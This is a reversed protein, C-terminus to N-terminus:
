FKKGGGGFTGGGTSHTTSRGSSSSGGGGSSSSVKPIVRSTRRTDILIDGSAGHTLNVFSNSGVAFPKPRTKTRYKKRTRFFHTIGTAGGGGVGLAVDIPYLQKPGTEEERYGDAPVGSEFYSNIRSLGAKVANGYAADIMGNDIVVDLTADIRADTMIDIAIGSTSIYVEREDMNLLLLLANEDTGVHDLIFYDAINRSSRGEADNLTLVLVDIGHARQMSTVIQEIEAAEESTLLSGYDYVGTGVAFSPIALLIVLLIALVAKKVM